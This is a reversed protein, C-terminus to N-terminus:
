KGIFLKNKALLIVDFITIEVPMSKGYAKRIRAEIESKFKTDASDWFLYTLIGFLVITLVCIILLKKM